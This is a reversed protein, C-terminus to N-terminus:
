QKGTLDRFDLGTPSQYMHLGFEPAIAFLHDFIDSQIGEYNFWNIDNTFCYIEIPLGDPGSQLQRVILTMDNHIKPHNKLYNYVYARFTGINTLKRLNVGAEGPAGLAANYAQLEAEKGAIYDKLLAFRKFHMAEDDTLSRVSNIDLYISRKIRRGGSESMGRWNRFAGSVMKNTPVTTVTNDWNQITVNYLAIDIVTGDANFSPMEIWDGIRIIQQNTLQISAVLSLLTDQFILMAVATMAGLGSLLILPSEDILAAIVLILGVVSAAIQALQIFGKIPRSHADPTAEYITNVSSLISNIVRVLILVIWGATVNRIITDASDPLNPVLGITAYIFIAPVIQSLQGFVNHQVLADDWTSHTKAVLMHLLTLLLKKTLVAAVIAVVITLLLGAILPLHTNIAALQEMM